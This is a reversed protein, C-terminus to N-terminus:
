SLLLLVILLIPQEAKAATPRGLCVVVGNSHTSHPCLLRASVGAVSSYPIKIKIREAKAPTGGFVVRRPQHKGGGVM